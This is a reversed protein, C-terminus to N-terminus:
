VLAFYLTQFTLLVICFLTNQYLYLNTVSKQNYKLLFGGVQSSPRYM